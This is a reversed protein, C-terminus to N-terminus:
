NHLHSGKTVQRIGLQLQANALNIENGQSHYEKHEVYGLFATM